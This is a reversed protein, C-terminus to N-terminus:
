GVFAPVNDLWGVILSTIDGQFTKLQKEEFPDYRLWKAGPAYFWAVYEFIWAGSEGEKKISAIYAGTTKPLATKVSIWEM